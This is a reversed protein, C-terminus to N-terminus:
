EDEDDDEDLPLIPATELSKRLEALADAIIEYVRARSLGISESIELSKQRQCGLGFFLRIIKRERAPLATVHDYIASLLDRKEARDEPLESRPDELIDMLRLNAEDEDYEQHLSLIPIREVQDTLSLFHSRKREQACFSLMRMKIRYTAYTSLRNGMEPNFREAAERLGFYGEQILDAVSIHPNRRGIMKAIRETLWLNADILTDLAIPDGARARRGLDLEEELTLPHKAM